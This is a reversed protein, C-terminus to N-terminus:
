PTTRAGARGLAGLNRPGHSGCAETRRAPRETTCRGALAKGRHEIHDDRQQASVAVDDHTVLLGGQERLSSRRWWRGGPETRRPSAKHRPPTAVRLGAGQELGLDRDAGPGLPVLVPGAKDLDVEDAVLPAVRTPSNQKVRVTVSMAVPQVILRETFFLAAM